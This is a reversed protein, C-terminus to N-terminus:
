SLVEVALICLREVDGHFSAEFQSPTLHSRRYALSLDVLLSRGPITAVERWQNGDWKEVRGYSQSAYGDVYVTIRLKHLTGRCDYEYHGVHDAYQGAASCRESITSVHQHPYYLKTTAM